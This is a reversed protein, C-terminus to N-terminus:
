ASKKMAVRGEVDEVVVDRRGLLRLEDNIHLYTASVTFLHNSSILLRPTPTPTTHPLASGGAETHLFITLPYLM